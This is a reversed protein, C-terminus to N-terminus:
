AGGQTPDYVEVWDPPFMLSADTYSSVLYGFWQSPYIPHRNKSLFAGWWSYSSNALIHLDCLTMLYLDIWDLPASTEYAVRDAYERPRTPGSRIYVESNLWKSMNEQCWPEDDTFVIISGPEDVLKIAAQYYDKSRLPHYGLPHTVNDGRRVHVSTWPRPLSWLDNPVSSRATDTAFLSFRLLERIFTESYQFLGYDQLYVRAREDLHQPITGADLGEQPGYCWDPISFYPRYDWNEPLLFEENRDGAIGVTAAVQWLMNGLRGAQSLRPFTIM